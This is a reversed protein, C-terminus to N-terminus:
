IEDQRDASARRAGFACSVVTAAIILLAMLVLYGTSVPIWAGGLALLYYRPIRGTVCASVYKWLPYGSSPALVRIPYYPLPSFAFVAITAWPQWYFYRVATKYLYTERLPAVRRFEFVKRVVFYDVIAAVGTAVGGVAAVMWADYIAGAYVVAPEHPLYIFSNGPISYWFYGVLRWWEPYWVRTLLICVLAPVLTVGLVWFAPSGKAKHVLGVASM